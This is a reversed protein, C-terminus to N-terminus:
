NIIYWKSPNRDFCNAVKIKLKKKKVRYNKLDLSRATIQLLDRIEFPEGGVRYALSIHADVNPGQPFYVKQEISYFIEKNGNNDSIASMNCYPEGVIYLESPRQLHRYLMPISLSHYITVHPIFKSTKLLRSVRRNKEIVLPDDVVLWLCYKFM